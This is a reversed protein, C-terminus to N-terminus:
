ITAYVRREAVAPRRRVWGGGSRQGVQGTTKAHHLEPGQTRRTGYDREKEGQFCGGRTEGPTEKQQGSLEEGFGQEHDRRGGHRRYSRRLPRLSAAIKSPYAFVLNHLFDAWMAPSRKNRVRSNPFSLSETTKRLACSGALAGPLSIFESLVFVVTIVLSGRLFSPSLLIGTVPLFVAM